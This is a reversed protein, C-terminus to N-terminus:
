VLGLVINCIEESCEWPHSRLVDPPLTGGHENRQEDVWRIAMEHRRQICIHVAEYVGLRINESARFREKAAREADALTKYCGDDERLRLDGPLLYDFSFGGQDHNRNRRIVYVIVSVM